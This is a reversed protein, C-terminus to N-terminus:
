KFNCFINKELIWGILDWFASFVKQGMEKRIPKVMNVECLILTVNIFCFKAFFM